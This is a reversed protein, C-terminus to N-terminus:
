LLSRTAMRALFCDLKADHVATAGGGLLSVCGGVGLIGANQFGLGAKELWQGGGVGHWLGGGGRARAHNCCRPVRGAYRVAASAHRGEGAGSEGVGESAVAEGAEEDLLAHTAALPSDQCQAGRIMGGAQGGLQLTSLKYIHNLQM